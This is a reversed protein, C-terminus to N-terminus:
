NGALISQSDIANKFIDGLFPGDIRSLPDLNQTLRQRRQMHIEHMEHAAVLGALLLSPLGRASLTYRSYM